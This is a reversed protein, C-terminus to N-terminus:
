WHGKPLLSAFRLGYGDPDAILFDREGYFRDGIPTVLRANAGRACLWHADVDAVGVRLNVVPHKASPRPTKNESLFLKHGDRWQLEAFTKEQHTVRFGLKEYFARSAALDRVSFEAVLQASPPPTNKPTACGACFTLVSLLALLRM